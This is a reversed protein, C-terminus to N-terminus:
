AYSYNYFLRIERVNFWGLSKVINLGSVNWDYIGSIIRAARNQM